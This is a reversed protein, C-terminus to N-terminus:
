NWTVRFQHSQDRNEVKYGLEELEKVRESGLTPTTLTMKGEKASAEVMELIKKLPPGGEASISRAMEASLFTGSM